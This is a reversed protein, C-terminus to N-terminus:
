AGQMRLSSLIWSIRGVDPAEPQHALYHTLTAVAEDIRGLRGLMLGRDRHQSWDHPDLLLLRDIARLTGAADERRAWSRKLNQNMRVMVRLPDSPGTLRAWDEPSPEPARPFNQRLSRRLDREGLVRGGHFPDLWFSHSGSHGAATLAGPSPGVLFHGPFSVGVLPLGLRRAVGLMVISLLIPLGRGRELVRELDSNQPDDYTQTDGQLQGPGFLSVAVRAVSERLPADPRLHIRHAMTDLRARCAPLDVGLREDKAILLAAEDLDIAAAEGLALQSLALRAGPDGEHDRYRLPESM